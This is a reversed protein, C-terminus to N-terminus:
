LLICNKWQLQHLTKNDFTGPPRQYMSYLHNWRHVWTEWTIKKLHQKRRLPSFDSFSLTTLLNM